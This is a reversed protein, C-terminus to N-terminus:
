IQFASIPHVPNPPPPISNSQALLQMADPSTIFPTGPDHNDTNMLDALTDHFTYSPPSNIAM